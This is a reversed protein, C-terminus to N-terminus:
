PRSGEGSLPAALLADAVRELGAVRSGKVLVVDGDALPGLTDVVEDISAVNVLGYDQEGFAIAFTIGLDRALAGIELHFSLKGSGLEAMTGLVAFRRSAPLQSLAVLAARMSSPNANYADNLVRVGSAGRQLDMRMPSLDTTELGAAVNELSVGSVLAASSAALANEVQHIGRAGLRVSADGWATRLVFRARVEDDLSVEEALVLAGHHGSASFAVVRGRARARMRGFLADDRNLVSAGSPSISDYIESKADATGEATGFLERHATGINVIVGVTPRAVACLTAIHGPGRAGMEIIAAVADQPANILTLPVGIENNYSKESAAVPGEQRFIAALLDKTSTKGSSGTVAIVREPLEDRAARGFTTLAVATDEVEIEGPIGKPKSTFWVVAGATRAADIYDHGDRQDFLPVFLSGVRVIRSDTFAGSVDREPGVLHGDVGAAIASALRTKPLTREHETM